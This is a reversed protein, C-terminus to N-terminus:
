GAGAVTVGRGEGGRGGMGRGEGLGTWVAAGAVKAGAGAVKVGAGAVKAGAGAVKAGAGAVKAPGAGGPGQARRGTQNGDKAKAHEKAEVVDVIRRLADISQMAATRFADDGFAAAFALCRARCNRLLTTVSRRSRGFLPTM